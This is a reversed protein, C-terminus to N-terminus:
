GKRKGGGRGLLSMGLLAHSGGEEGEPRGWHGRKQSARGLTRIRFRMDGKGAKNKETVNIVMRNAIYKERQNKTHRRRGSYLNQESSTELKSYFIHCM